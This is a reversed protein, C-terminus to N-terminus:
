AGRDRNGRRQPRSRRLSQRGTRDPVFRHRDQNAGSRARRAQQASAMDASAATLGAAAALTWQILKM